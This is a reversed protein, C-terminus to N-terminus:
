AGEVQKYEVIRFTVGVYSQSRMEIEREAAERTLYGEVVPTTAPALEFGSNGPGWDPATACRVRWGPRRWRADHKRLLPNTVEGIVIVFISSM